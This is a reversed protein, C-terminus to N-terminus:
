SIKHRYCSSPTGSHRTEAPLSSAQPASHAVGTPLFPLNPVSVLPITQRSIAKPVSNSTVAPQFPPLPEAPKRDPLRLVVQPVPVPFGTRRSSFAPAVPRFVPKTIRLFGVASGSAPQCIPPALNAARSQRRSIPSASHVAKVMSVWGSKM